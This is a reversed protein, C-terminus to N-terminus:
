GCQLTLRAKDFRKAALDEKRIYFYLNGMDGWMIEPEVDCISSMQFLLVWDAAHKEVDAKKDTSLKNWAKGDGMYLNRSTAECDTLAEGQILDAYGLLKCRECSEYSIHLKKLAAEYDEYDSSEFLTPTHVSLEEYSPLSNQNSFDLALEPLIYESSLDNPANTETFGATKDFYYVQACGADDPDFGWKMTEIEYFFYLMGSDPLKGEKDFPHIEDLSIQALFSLPRAKKIGDYDEGNYYPWQFDSPLFPNGGIKSGNKTTAKDTISISIENKILNTLDTATLPASPPIKHSKFLKFINFSM